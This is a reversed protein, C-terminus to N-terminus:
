AVEARKRLRLPRRLGDTPHLYQRAKARIAQYSEGRDLGDIVVRLGIALRAAAAHAANDAQDRNRAAKAAVFAGVISTVLAGGAAGVLLFPLPSTLLGITIQSM